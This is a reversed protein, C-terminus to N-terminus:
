PPGGLVNAPPESVVIVLSAAAAGRDKFWAVREQLLDIELAYRGPTGPVRVLLKQVAMAGPLIAGVISSRPNEPRIGEDHDEHLWHYGLYIGFAPDAGQRPSLWVHDGHNHIEIDLELLGGPVAEGVASTCVVAGKCATEPLPSTYPYPDRPDSTLRGEEDFSLDGIARVADQTWKDGALNSLVDIRRLESALPRSADFGMGAIADAIHNRWASLVRHRSLADVYIKTTRSTSLVPSEAFEACEAAWRGYSEPWRLMGGIVDALDRQASGAPTIKMVCDPLEAYWGQDSVITPLGVQLAKSVVASTEGMTPHRLAIMLDARDYLANFSADDMRGHVVLEISSIERMADVSPMVDPSLTGAIELRFPRFSSEALIQLAELLWDFRRNAEGGGMVVVTSLTHRRKPAPLGPYLQPIVRVPIWPFKASVQAAAFKSHVVIETACKAAVQFLPYEMVDDSSWVPEGRQYGDLARRVEGPSHWKSLLEVYSEENLLGAGHMLTVAMHHLVVDHLHVVGPVTEMLPLMWGHYDSHNGMQYVVVDSARLAALVRGVDQGLFEARGVQIVEVGQVRLLMALGEAYEAIGSREPLRPGVLAVRLSRNM